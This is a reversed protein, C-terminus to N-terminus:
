RNHNTFYLKPFDLFCCIKPLYLFSPLNVTKCSSELYISVNAVSTIYFCTSHKKDINKENTQFKKNM